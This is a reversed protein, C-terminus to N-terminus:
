IGVVIRTLLRVLYLKDARGKHHLISIPRCILTDAVEAGIMCESNRHCLISAEFIENCTGPTFTSHIMRGLKELFIDPFGRDLVVVGNLDSKSIHFLLVFSASCRM